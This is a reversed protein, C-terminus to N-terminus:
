ALGGQIVRLQPRFRVVTDTQHALPASLMAVAGPGERQRTESTITGERRPIESAIGGVSLPCQM